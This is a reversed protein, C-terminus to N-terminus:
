SLHTLAKEAVGAQFELATQGAPPAGFGSLLVLYRGKQVLTRVDGAIVDSAVLRYQLTADAGAIPETALDVVKFRVEDSAFTPCGRASAEAAAFAEGAAAADAFVSVLEFVQVKGPTAPRAIVGTVAHSGVPTSAKCLSLQPPPDTTATTATSAQGLTLGPVDGAKLLLRSLDGVPSGTPAPDAPDAPASSGSCATLGLVLVCAAASAAISRL